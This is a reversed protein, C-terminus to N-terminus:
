PLPMAQRHNIVPRGLADMMNWIRKRFMVEGSESDKPCPCSWFAGRVLIAATGPIRGVPEWIRTGPLRAQTNNKDSEAPVAVPNLMLM